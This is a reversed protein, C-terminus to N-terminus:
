VYALLAGLSWLRPSYVPTDRELPRYRSKRPKPLWPRRRQRRAASRRSVLALIDTTTITPM